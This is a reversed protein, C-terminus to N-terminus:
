RVDFLVEQGPPNNQLNRTALLMLPSVAMAIYLPGKLEFMNKDFFSWAQDDTKCRSLVTVM